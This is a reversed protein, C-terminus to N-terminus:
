PKEELFRKIKFERRGISAAEYWHVEASKISGDSLRVMALGKRKRWRAKGYFRNLRSLERIQGAVAITEVREIAGLIEIEV